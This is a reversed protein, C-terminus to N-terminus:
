LWKFPIMQLPKHSSYDKMRQEHNMGYNTQKQKFSKLYPNESVDASRIFLWAPIVNCM